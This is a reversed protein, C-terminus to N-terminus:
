GMTTDLIIMLLFGIVFSVTALNKHEGSQSAPVLDKVVVFLTAGSAFALIYPLVKALMETLFFAVLASVLELVGSLVGLWFSKAKSHGDIYIPLSVMAGDPINQVAIGIALTLASALSIMAHGYYAGAIAVGVAMGEPINHITIAFMMRGIKEGNFVSKKNPKQLHSSVVDVILLFIIGVIFGIIAPLWSVAQMTTTQNLAPLLLSWVSAAMMMGSAFGLLVQEFKQNLNKGIVFVVASGLVTGLLPLFFGLFLQFM